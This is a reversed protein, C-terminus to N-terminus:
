RGSPHYSATEPFMASYQTRNPSADTVPPFPSPPTSPRDITVSPRLSEIPGGGSSNRRLPSCISGRTRRRPSVARADSDSERRRAKAVARRAAKATPVVRLRNGPVRYMEPSGQPARVSCRM